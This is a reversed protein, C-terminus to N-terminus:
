RKRQEQGKDPKPAQEVVQARPEGNYYRDMTLLQAFLNHGVALVVLFAGLAPAWRRGLGRTALAVVAAYLAILVLLYRTQEFNGHEPGLRYQYGVIHILGLLGGLMLVYTLLEHWRRRLASRARVLAAGALGVVSVLVSLGLWNAWMPFDYQFWGFRGIFGQIWTQWLPYTPYLKFGEEPNPFQDTMFPLKPLYFQWTYAILERVQFTSGTAFGATTTDADREYLAQSAVLWLGIPLVAVVGAAAVGWLARRRREVPTKWAALLVGIAAGPVLGIMSSKALVGVAVAAGIWAGVGPSLGRRFARALGALLAAGALYLLNDNNVGGSMFAFLPQFAVVLAGVTWAWRTRPLLERLFLFVFGVTFAALLATAIRMAELRDLFTGSKAVRYAAGTYAYYLPPHSSAYGAGAESESDLKGSLQRQLRRDHASSWSPAGLISFPVGDFAIQADRPPNWYFGGDLRRPIEGTEGVYQAYGAHVPEDPVQYPPVLLSWTVANVFALLMCIWLARPARGLRARLAALGRRTRSRPESAAVATV